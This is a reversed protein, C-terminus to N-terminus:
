TTARGGTWPNKRKLLKLALLYIGMVALGLISIALIIKEM